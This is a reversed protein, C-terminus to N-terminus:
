LSVRYAEEFYSKVADWEDATTLEAVHSVALKEGTVIKSFARDAVRRRLHIVLRVCSTRVSLDAFIRVSRFLAYRQRTVIEVPGLTKAYAEILEYVHVLEAPRNRLVEDRSGTGCAHRQNIRTFVRGCKPCRWSDKTMGVYQLARADRNRRSWRNASKGDPRPDREQWGHKGYYAVARANMPSVVLLVRHVGRGRMAHLEDM